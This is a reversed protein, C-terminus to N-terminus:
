LKAPRHAAHCRLFAPINLHWRYHQFKQNRGLPKALRLEQVSQLVLELPKATKDSLM